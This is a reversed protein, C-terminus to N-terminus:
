LGRLGVHQPHVYVIRVKDNPLTWQSRKEKTNVYYPLGHTKSIVRVWGDSLKASM